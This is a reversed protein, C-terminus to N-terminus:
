SRGRHGRHRQGVPARAASDVVLRPRHVEALQKTLDAIQKRYDANEAAMKAVGGMAKGVRDALDALAADRGALAKKLADREGAIKALDGGDHLGAARWLDIRAEPNAPRDVLSIEDLRVGTIIKRDKSDRSTVKGGISFGKYVGSTVKGWAIDDVIKAGVYLGRDNVTAEVTKGVASLAHMERVAPYQLYDDLADEIASKLVIEGAADIAETSAYGFVLRQEADVKQIDGYLRM